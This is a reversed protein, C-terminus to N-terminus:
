QACQATIFKIADEASDTPLQYNIHCQQEDNIGWKATVNGSEPMGSLYVEGNDAVIGSNNPVVDNGNDDVLSVVTGFPLAKGDLSLTMLVRYGIRTNIKALVVAGKTPVVTVQSNTVDVNGALESVDISIRNEAYPSLYPKIAYGWANTKIGQSNQIAINKAGSATVLAITDGVPQSLTVGYPHAIVAGQIGYNFRESNPTYSYGMNINANSGQYGLYANGGVSHDQQDYSQQASYSLNGELNSGSIGTQITTNGKGTYNVSSSMYNRTSLWQGLPISVNFTVQHANTHSRTSNTYGYSLGYSVSNYSVNYGASINRDQGATNWYDQQYASIYVSGYSALSQNLNIQYRSRRNDDTNLHTNENAQYFDYFGNASYRTTNFSITSNTEQVTKTYQLRYAQGTQKKEEFDFRTSAHQADVSLAGFNGLDFGLGFAYSQYDSSFLGGGYATINGPLGYSITGEVFNPKKTNDSNSRYKGATASYKLSGQRQMVALSSFPVEFLQKNGNEEEVTVELNGSYSTPYLDNFVFPGSSVYTQYIISGNQRVTVKANGQAFGRVVPAFGRLSYPLMSEDSTLKVGTFQFSNFIEGTTSVEGLALQSKIPQLDREVYTNLSNWKSSDDSHQYTSNNRLRWAGLNAGSRLTVFQNDQYSKNGNNKYWSRAGTLSYNLILAPMGQDYLTPDISGRINSNMAIQPINIKLVQQSFVFQTTAFEIYQNLNDITANNALEKLTPIVSTKVGWETLMQKTLVPELKNDNDSKFDITKTGVTKDNVIINVTYEGPLQGGSVSFQELSQLDALNFGDINSLASPNFYDKAYVRSANLGMVSMTMLLTIYSALKNLRYKDQLM